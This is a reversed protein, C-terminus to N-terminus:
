STIPARTQMSPIATIMYVGRVWQDPRCFSARHGSPCNLANLTAVLVTTEYRVTLEDYGTPSRGTLKLHNIGCRRGVGGAQGTRM